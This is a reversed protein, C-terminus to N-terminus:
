EEPSITGPWAAPLKLGGRYSLFSEFHGIWFQKGQGAQWEWPFGLLLEPKERSRDEEQSVQHKGMHSQM